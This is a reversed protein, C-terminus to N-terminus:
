PNRGRSNVTVILPAHNGTTTMSVPSHEYVCRRFKLPCYYLYNWRMFRDISATVTLRRAVITLTKAFTRQRRM